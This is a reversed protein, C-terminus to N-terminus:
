RGQEAYAGARNIINYVTQKSIGFREMIRTKPVGEAALRRVEACGQADVKPNQKYVGRAKALAIGEAQRERITERELEAIAAFVTMTFRGEKTNTNFSPTDAFEVTVGRTDLDDLITLLDRTSRALRDISKVRVTDGERVYSLMAQLGPRRSDKGSLEDTFLKDAGELAELQRAMNQDTTSVRAYAVTQGGM